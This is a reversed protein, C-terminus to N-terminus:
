EDLTLADAAISAVPGVVGAEALLSDAIRVCLARVAGERTQGEVETDVGLESAMWRGARREVVLVARQYPQELVCSFAHQGFPEFRLPETQACIFLQAEELQRVQAYAQEEAARGPAEARELLRRFRAEVRDRIRRRAACQANLADNLRERALEIM